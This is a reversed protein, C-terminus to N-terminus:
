RSAKEATGRPWYKRFVTIKVRAVVARISKTVMRAAKAKARNFKGPLSRAKVRNRDKIIIGVSSTTMVFKTVTVLISRRLLKRPRIRGETM